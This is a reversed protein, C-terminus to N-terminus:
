ETDDEEESNIRTFFMDSAGKIIDLTIFIITIINIVMVTCVTTIQIIVSNDDYIQYFNPIYPRVYTVQVIIYVSFMKIIIDTLVIMCTVTTIEAMNVTGRFFFIAYIIILLLFCLGTYALSTYFLVNLFDYPYNTEPFRSIMGNFTLDCNSHNSLMTYQLNTLCVYHGCLFPNDCTKNGVSSMDSFAPVSGMVLFSNLRSNSTEYSVFNYGCSLLCVLIYIRISHSQLM